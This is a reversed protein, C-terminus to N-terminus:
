YITKNNTNTVNIGLSSHMDYDRFYRHDLFFPILHSRAAPSSSSMNQLTDLMFFLMCVNNNLLFSSVYNSLLIFNIYM